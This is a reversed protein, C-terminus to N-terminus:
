DLSFMKEIEDIPKPKYFLFGQFNDCGFGSLLEKQFPTEIGEAILKIGLSKGLAIVTKIIAEDNNNKDLDKIFDRDIKLEDIPMDKLYSLSSFGTGFDDLSLQVGLKKILGMKSLLLEHDEVFISETLELKLKSPVIGTNIIIENLQTIFDDQLFQSASVNVSLTLDKLKPHSSWKKILECSSALVWHGIQYILGSEEAIPIFETPSILGEEPDRWRIM